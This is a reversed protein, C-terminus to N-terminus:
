DATIQWGQSFDICSDGPKLTAYLLAGPIQLMEGSSSFAAPEAPTSHSVAIHERAQVVPWMGSSQM